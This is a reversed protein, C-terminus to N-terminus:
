KFGNKWERIAALVEAPDSLTRGAHRSASERIAREGCRLFPNTRRELAIDTPLTPQNTDRLHQARMGWEALAANDPDVARAFKINSVTYEHGCYVRTDGPLAALRGLSRYMQQPTGEFLRGCGAAFLTDGCFLMGGGHFAIHSRTHGPIEVVELEIGFHPLSFRDGDRVRDSVGHIRDDDPGYVPVRHRELLRENGGVHDAHHHTNLIAVLKLRERALYDLVPQADGPDVVVAHTADRVTWIYNDSFAPLPIVTLPDMAYSWPDRGPQM